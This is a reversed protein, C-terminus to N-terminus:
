DTRSAVRLGGEKLWDKYREPSGWCKSPIEWHCYGVIERLSNLNTSDARVLAERLDNSLVARLFDGVPEHRKVYRDIAQKVTDPIEIM